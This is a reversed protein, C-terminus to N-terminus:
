GHTGEQLRSGLRRERAHLSRRYVSGPAWGAPACRATRIRPSPCLRKPRPWSGPRCRPRRSRRPCPLATAPMSSRAPRSYNSAREGSVFPISIHHAAAAARSCWGSSAPLTKKKKFRDRKFHAPGPYRLVFIPSGAPDNLEHLLLLGCSPSSPRRLGV